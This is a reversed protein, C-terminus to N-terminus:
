LDWTLCSQAEAVHAVFAMTPSGRGQLETLWPSSVSKPCEASLCLRLQSVYHEFCWGQSDVQLGFHNLKLLIFHYATYVFKATFAMTLSRLGPHAQIASVWLRSVNRAVEELM